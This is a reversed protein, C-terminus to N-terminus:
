RFWGCGVSGFLHRLILLGDTLPRTEGDGDIDLATQNAILHAAIESSTMREANEGIAGQTLAEGSFGFLHRLILLGDTLPALEGNDDVDLTFVQPADSAAVPNMWCLAGCLTLTLFQKM